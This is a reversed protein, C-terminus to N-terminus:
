IGSIRPGGIVNICYHASPLLLLSKPHVEIRPFVHVRKSEQRFSYPSAITLKYVGVCCGDMYHLIGTQTMNKDIVSIM